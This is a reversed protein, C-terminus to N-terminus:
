TEDTTRGRHTGPARRGVLTRIPFPIAIREEEFRAHLRKIFEHKILYQNVFERARLIVTFNVSSDGRRPGADLGRRDDGALRADLGLTAM